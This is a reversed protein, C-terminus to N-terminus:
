SGVEIVLWVAKASSGGTVPFGRLTPTSSNMGNGPVSFGARVGVLPPSGLNEVTATFNVIGLPGRSMSVNRIDLVGPPNLEASPYDVSEAAM